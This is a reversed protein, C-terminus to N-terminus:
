LGRLRLPQEGARIMGIVTLLVGVLVIGTITLFLPDRTVVYFSIFCGLFFLRVFVTTRIMVDLQHRTIQIILLCLAIMFTGVTRTMIDDYSGRAGLLPLAIQPAALLGIGGFGLYGILYFLSFRKM